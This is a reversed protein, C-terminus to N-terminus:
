YIPNHNDEPNIDQKSPKRMRRRKERKSWSEGWLMMLMVPIGIIMYMWWPVELGAKTGLIYLLITRIVAYGVVLKLVTIVGGWMKKRTSKHLYGRESCEKTSSPLEAGCKDCTM